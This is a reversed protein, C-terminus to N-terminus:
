KVSEFKGDKIQLVGFTRKVDGNNDFSINGTLSNFSHSLLYNKIYKGSNGVQELAEKLIVGAEYSYAEYVNPKRNYCQEFLKVFDTYFINDYDIHFHTCYFGEASIGAVKILSSSYSGDGGIIPIDLGIEKAQKIILASEEYNGPIFIAQTGSAKIKSLQIRFNNDISTYSEQVTIEGGLNKVEKIFSEAISNGYDDNEKLVAIKQVFLENILFKAATNGQLFNSPVNRFIYKGSNKIDDASSISSFLIIKNKEAIPAIALTVSSAAAGYIVQVKDINILKNIANLGERPNLKSDEYILKYNTGQFALDFGNKMAEGYTAGEGTLPAIIGVVVSDDKTNLNNNWVLYGSVGIVLILIGIILGKNKM